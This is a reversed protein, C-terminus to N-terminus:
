SIYITYGPYFTISLLEGERIVAEVGVGDSKADPWDQLQTTFQGTKIMTEM